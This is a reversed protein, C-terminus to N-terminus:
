HFLDFSELLVTLGCTKIFVAIFLLIATKERYSIDLVLIVIGGLGVLSLPM